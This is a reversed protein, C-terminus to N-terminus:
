KAPRLRTAASPLVCTRTANKLALELKDGLLALEERSLLKQMSEFLQREEKRIHASLRQALDAVDNSLMSGFGAREFQTRLDAHESILEAVLAKLEDFKAAAPFVIQEEAAFHAGIESQFLQAIESQWAELDATAIPSARDIRVCLALARQHQHSLPVLNKDRLM